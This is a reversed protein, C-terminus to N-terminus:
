INKQCRTLNIPYVVFNERKTNRVFSIHLTIGPCSKNLRKQTLVIEELNIQPTIINELLEQELDRLGRHIKDLRWLRDLNDKSNVIENSLQHKLSKIQAIQRNIKTTSM